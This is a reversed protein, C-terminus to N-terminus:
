LKGIKELFTIEQQTRAVPKIVSFIEQHHTMLDKLDNDGVQLIVYDIQLDKSNKLMMFQSVISTGPIGFNLIEFQTNLNGLIHPYTHENLVGHGFTFSDGICAVRCKTKPSILDHNGRIGINNISIDYRAYNFHSKKYSGSWYGFHGLDSPYSKAKKNNQPFDSPQNNLFKSVEEAVLYNGYRCLHNDEPSLTIHDYDFNRFKSTLDLYTCNYEESISKFFNRCIEESPSYYSNPKTQPIYILLLDSEHKKTLQHFENFKKRYETKLCHLFVEKEDYLSKWVIEDGINENKLQFSLNKKQFLLYDFKNLIKEWGFDSRSNKHFYYAYSLFEGCSLFILISVTLKLINKKSIM